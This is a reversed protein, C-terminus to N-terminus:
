RRLSHLTARAAIELERVTGDNVLWPMDPYLIEIAKISMEEEANAAKYGPRRLGIVHGGKRRVWSLENGYRLDTILLRKNELPANRLFLQKIWYDQDQNRRYRGWFVLFDRYEEKDAGWLDAQVNIGALLQTCEAKLADAFAAQEYEQLQDALTNKGVKSYGCFALLM